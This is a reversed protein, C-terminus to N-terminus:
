VHRRQKWNVKVKWEPGSDAHSGLFGCFAFWNMLPRIGGFEIM